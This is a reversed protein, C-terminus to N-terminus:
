RMLEPTDLPRQAMYWSPIPDSMGDFWSLVASAQDLMVAVEGGGFPIAWPISSLTNSAIYYALLQFFLDPPRGDFYGNIQGSAFAPSAQASWVIRNFEEWPDGFDFKEFDLIQLHDGALIMNGVHYDGHQFCQPRNTLLDRNAHLYDIIREDDPFKVPCNRYNIIKRDTKRSFRSAWDTQDPPAPLSHILRLIQGARVGIDYQRDIALPPLASEAEEGDCWSLILYPSSGDLSLGFELPQPMPVGLDFVKQMWAFEQSKREYQGSQGLRLTFVRGTRDELRYKRDGSWGKNIPRIVAFRETRPINEM